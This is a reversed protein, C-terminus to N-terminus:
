PVRRGAPRASARASGAAALGRARRVGALGRMVIASGGALTTPVYWSAHILISFALAQEAPVDLLGLAAVGLWEYTGVYGPSSPIALGLNMVATVFLADVLDLDFGLSRAILIAALAWSTWAALSLGFWVVPGRRGMPEALEEATDRLVARLTGRVRRERAHRRTYVRAFVVAAAVGILVMVAGAAIGVIWASTAVAALGVLLLVFLAVVDCARDIVVTGFARGAPMHASTALWRARFFDGLRAPLVNNCAVGSLVMEYFRRWRVSQVAAIRRWRAAQIGSVALLAGVALLVPGRKAAELTSRVANLDASRVALWLFTASVPLGVVLGIVIRRTSV